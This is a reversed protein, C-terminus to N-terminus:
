IHYIKVMLCLLTFLEEEGFSVHTV